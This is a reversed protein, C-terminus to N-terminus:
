YAWVRPVATAADLCKEYLANASEGYKRGDAPDLYTIQLKYSSDYEYDCLVIWHTWSSYSRQLM